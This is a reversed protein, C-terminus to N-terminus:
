GTTTGWGGRIAARRRPDRSREGGGAITGRWRRNSGVIHLQQEGINISGHVQSQEETVAMAGRCKCVTWEVQLREGGGSMAGRWGGARDSTEAHSREGGCSIAGRRRCDSRDLQSREGKCAMAGRMRARLMHDSGEAQENEVGGFIARWWRRDSGKM